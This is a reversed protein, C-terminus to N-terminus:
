IWSVKISVQKALPSEQTSSWLLAVAEDTCGHDQAEYSDVSKKGLYDVQLLMVACRSCQLLLFSHPSSTSSSIVDSSM